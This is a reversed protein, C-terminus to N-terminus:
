DPLGLVNDKENTISHCRIHNRRCAEYRVLHNIAAVLGFHLHILEWYKSMLHRMRQVRENGVAGVAGGSEVGTM